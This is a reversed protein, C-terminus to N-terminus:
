GSSITPAGHLAAMARGVLVPSVARWVEEPLDPQRLLVVYSGACLMAEVQRVTTEAVPDDPVDVTLIM